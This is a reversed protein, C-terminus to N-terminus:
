RVIYWKANPTLDFHFHNHHAKNANPTLMVNFVRRAHLTCVIDSLIRAKGEDPRYSCPDKGSKKDFHELVDLLDGDATIFRRIDIARAFRHQSTQAARVKEYQAKSKRCRKGRAGSPCSTPPKSLPRYTSYFEVANIGYEKLQRAVQVLALALRCDMVSHVPTKGPHMPAIRVGDIPGTLLIPTDVLPTEFDPRRFPVQHARLQKLCRGSTLKMMSAAEPVILPAAGRAAADSVAQASSATGRSAHDSGLKAAILADLACPDEMEHEEQDIRSLPANLDTDDAPGGDPADSEATDVEAQQMPRAESAPEIPARGRTRFTDLCGFLSIGALWLAAGIVAPRM